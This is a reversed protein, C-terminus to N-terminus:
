TEGLFGELGMATYFGLYTMGYWGVLVLVVAATGKLGGAFGRSRFFYYPLALLAFAVVAVNLIPGRRYGITDTDKRYWMFIVVVGVILLPGYVMLDYMPRDYFVYNSVGMVFSIVGLLMLTNATYKTM